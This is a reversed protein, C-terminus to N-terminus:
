FAKSSLLFLKSCTVSALFFVSICKFFFLSFFRRYPNCAAILELGNKALTLPTGYIRKDIMIEKILGIGETTNAEDLFLITSQDCANKNNNALEM